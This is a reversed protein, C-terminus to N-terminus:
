DAKLSKVPNAVAAKITQFSITFLAICIATLGAMVFVWWNIQIKYAFDLLWKSMLWWAIPSAIAIAIIILKLFDISFLNVISGVSAGLVKRIGIEKVRQATDQVILGFIGLAALFMSLGSFFTFLEQLKSEEKYQNALMDDVWKVELLREPYFEKWLKDLSATVRKESGPQIRILMGGYSPSNESIIITPEMPNKLSENHFDAVIGVPTTLAKKVPQGLTNIHLVKATYATILSSQASAAAVYHSSDMQMLSDQTLTDTAFSKDFFRGSQLHLGLTKALDLDGNIFWVKIKSGAHNPDDIEKSSYGAGYTPTWSTISAGVVGNQHLLENKFTAGKNGWSVFGISLLNSKNFGIDKNKM